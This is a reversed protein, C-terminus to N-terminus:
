KGCTLDYGLIYPLISTFSPHQHSHHCSVAHAYKDIASAIEPLLCTFLCCNDEALFWVGALPSSQLFPLHNRFNHFGPTTPWLSIDGGRHQRYSFLLPLRPFGSPLSRRSGVIKHLLDPRRFTHTPSHERKSPSFLCKINYGQAPQRRQQSWATVVSM